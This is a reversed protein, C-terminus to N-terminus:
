FSGCTVMWLHADPDAFTGVYGWPKEAPEEVVTAGAEAARKVIEDVEANTEAALNLVCESSRQPAVEHDGIVWGFGGTPILMMRLGENLDFQLPEPVGDDALEGVSQFGLAAQYFEYSTPRDAIPLSLIIPGQPM